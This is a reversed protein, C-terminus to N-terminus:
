GDLQEARRDAAGLQQEQVLLDPERQERLPQLARRKDVGAVRELRTRGDLEVFEGDADAEADADHRRERGDPDVHSVREVPPRLVAAIAEM